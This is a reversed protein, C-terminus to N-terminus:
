PVLRWGFVGEPLAYTVGTEVDILAGPKNGQAVVLVQSDDPSWFAFLLGVDSLGREEPPQWSHCYHTLTGSPVEYTYFGIEGPRGSPEDGLRRANAWIALNRGDHSWRMSLVGFYSFISSLDTAKGGRGYRDYVYIEEAPYGSDYAFDEGDRAWTPGGIRTTEGVQLVAIVDGSEADRLEPPGEGDAAVVLQGDPSWDIAGEVWALRQLLAGTQASLLVRSNDEAVYYVTGEDWWYLITPEGNHPYRQIDPWSDQWPHELTVGDLTSVVRFGVVNGGEIDTFLMHTGEGSIAWHAGERVSEMIPRASELSGTALYFSRVGLWDGTLYLLRGSQLATADYPMPSVPCRRVLLPPPTPSALLAPGATSPSTSASAIPSTPRPTQGAEPAEGCATFLMTLGLIVRVTRGM